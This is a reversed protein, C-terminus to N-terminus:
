RGWGRARCGRRRSYGSSTLFPRKQAHIRCPFLIMPREADIALKARALGPKVRAPDYKEADVGIYLTEVSEPARGFREILVRRTQENCVLTKELIDGM